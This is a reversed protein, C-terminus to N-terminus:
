QELEQKILKAMLMGVPEGGCLDSFRDALREGLDALWGAIYGLLYWM